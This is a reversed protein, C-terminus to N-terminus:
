ARVLTFSGGKLAGHGQVIKFKGKEETSEETDEADETEETEETKDETAESKDESKDETKDESKDESKDEDADASKLAKKVAKEIMNQLKEETVGEDKSEEKTEEKSEEEQKTEEQEKMNKSKMIKGGSKNIIINKSKAETQVSTEKEFNTTDVKYKRGARLIELRAEDREETSKFNTKNFKSIAKEVEGANSYGESIAMEYAESLAIQFTAGADAPVAVLSLEKFEIGHPIFFGDNSEEIEEVDCGVSVSDIRGDKIMEKMTEDIVHARFNVKPEHEDFEGSIVRGKIADVENRHDILLPVGSLTNASKRLEEALFKHNNSTITANLATGTIIFDDNVFASEIIPVQYNFKLAMNQKTGKEKRWTSYAIALRQKQDPYDKKMTENGMFRAIFEDQKEGKTPKPIPM